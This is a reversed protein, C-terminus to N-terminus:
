LSAELWRGHTADPVWRLELARRWDLFKFRTIKKEVLSSSPNNTQNVLRKKKLKGSLFIQLRFVPSVLPLSFFLRARAHDFYLMLFFGERVIFATLEWRPFLLSAPTVWPQYQLSQASSAIPPNQNSMSNNVAAGAPQVVYVGPLQQYLQLKPELDGNPYTQPVTPLPRFPLSSLAVDSNIRASINGEGSGPSNTPIGLTPTPQTYQVGNGLRQQMAKQAKRKRYWVAIKSCVSM